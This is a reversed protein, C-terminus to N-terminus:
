GVGVRIAAAVAVGVAGAANTKGWGPGACVFVVPVAGSEEELLGVLARRSVAARRDLPARLKSELLEFSPVARHEVRVSSLAGPRSIVGEAM